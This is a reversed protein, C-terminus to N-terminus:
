PAAGLAFVRVCLDRLENNDAQTWVHLTAGARVGPGNKVVLGERGPPLDITVANQGDFDVGVHATSLNSSRFAGRDWTYGAELRLAAAQPVGVFDLSAQVDGGPPNLRLCRQPSFKVEHWEARIGPADVASFVIPRARGNRYRRLELNGFTRAPGDETRDSDFGKKFGAVDTGPLSPESLVWIRAHEILDDGDSGLYGVVPINSPMFLRARETWWPFLLVVDGAQSEAELVRAVAVYDAEEVHTAPVRLQFGLCLVATVVVVLAEAM